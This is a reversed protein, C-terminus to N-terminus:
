GGGEGMAKLREAAAQGFASQPDMDRARRFAARAEDQRGQASYVLGLHYFAANLNQDLGIAFRLAEEAERYRKLHYLALGLNQYAVQPTSLTPLSIAKRYAAAAEEWAGTEALAIGVNMHAEAYGPDLEVAKRFQALALDMRGLQLYLWGLTNHYVAVTPDLAIAEQIASLALGAQRERLHGLGREYAARAQIRQLELAEEGTACGAAVIALLAAGMAWGLRTSM